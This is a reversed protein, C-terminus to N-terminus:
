KTITLISVDPGVAQRIAEHLSKVRESSLMGSVVVVQDNTLSLGMLHYEGQIQRLRAEVTNTVVSAGADQRRHVKVQMTKGSDAVGVIEIVFTQNYAKCLIVDSLALITHASFWSQAAACPSFILM